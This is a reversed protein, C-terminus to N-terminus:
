VAVVDFENGEPDTLTIWHYGGEKIEAQQTAGLGVIRDVEAQLEASVLDPHFRNKAVKGEPVRHFMWQTQGAPSDAVGIAAFEESAGDDVPRDLVASWFTALARADACDLSVAYLTAPM